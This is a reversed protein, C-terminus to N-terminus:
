KAKSIGRKKLAQQKVSTKKETTEWPNGIVHFVSQCNQGTQNVEFDQKPKLNSQSLSKFAATSPLGISDKKLM